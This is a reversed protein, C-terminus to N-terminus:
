TQWEAGGKGSFGMLSASAGGLKEYEGELFTLLEKVRLPRDYHNLIKLPAGNWQPWKEPDPYLLRGKSVIGADNLEKYDYLAYKLMRYLMSRAGDAILEDLTPEEKDHKM